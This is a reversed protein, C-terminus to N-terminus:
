DRQNKEDNKGRLIINDSANIADILCYICGDAFPEEINNYPCSTGYLVCQSLVIQKYQKIDKIEELTDLDVLYYNMNIYDCAVKLNIWENTTERINKLLKKADVEM